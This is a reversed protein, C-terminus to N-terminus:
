GARQGRRVLEQQADLRAGIAELFQEVLSIGKEYAMQTVELNLMYTNPYLKELKEKPVKGRSPDARFMEEQKYSLAMNRYFRRGRVELRIGVWSKPVLLIPHGDAYPLFSTRDVWENTAPRWVKMDHRKLRNPHASFEPYKKVARETFRILQERVIGTTIDSMRDKDVGEVYIPLAGIWQFIGIEVLPRLDTQLARCIQESYYNSVGRGNFGGVSMGLRTERPENLNGLMQRAIALRGVDDTAVNACLMSSFLRLQRDADHALSDTISARAILFPDLFLETDGDTHVDVFDVPVQINYYETLKM